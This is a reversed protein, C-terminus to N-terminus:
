AVKPCLLQAAAFAEDPQAFPGVAEMDAYQYFWGEGSEIDAGGSGEMNLIADPCSEIDWFWVDYGVRCYWSRYIRIEVNNQAM